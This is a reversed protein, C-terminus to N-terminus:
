PMFYFGLYHSIQKFIILLHPSCVLLSLCKLVQSDLMFEPRPIIDKQHLSPNTLEEGLCKTGEAKDFVVGVEFQGCYGCIVGCPLDIGTAGRM